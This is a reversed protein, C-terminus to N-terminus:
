LHDNLENKTALFIPNPAYIWKNPYIDPTYEGKDFVIKKPYFKKGRTKMSGTSDPSIELNPLRITM